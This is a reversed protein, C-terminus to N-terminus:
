QNRNAYSVNDSLGIWRYQADRTTLVDLEIDDKTIYHWKMQSNANRAAVFKGYLFAAVATYFALENKDYKSDHINILMGHSNRRRM